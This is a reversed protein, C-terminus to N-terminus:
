CPDRRWISRRETPKERQEPQSAPRTQLLTELRRCLRTLSDMREELSDLRAEPSTRLAEEQLALTEEEWGDRIGAVGRGGGQGMREYAAKIDSDTFKDPLMSIAASAKRNLPFTSIGSM